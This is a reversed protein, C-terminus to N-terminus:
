LKIQMRRIKFVMAGLLQKLLYYVDHDNDENIPALRKDRTIQLVRERIGHGVTDLIRRIYDKNTLELPFFLMPVSFVILRINRITNTKTGVSQSQCDSQALIAILHFM